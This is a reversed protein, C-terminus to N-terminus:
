EWVIEASGTKLQKLFTKCVDADSSVDKNHSAKRLVSWLSSIVPGAKFGVPTWPLSAGKGHSWCGKSWTWYMFINDLVRFDTRWPTNQTYAPGLVGLWGGHTPFPRHSVWSCGCRLSCHTVHAHSLSGVCGLATNGELCTHPVAFDWLEMSPCYWGGQWSSTAWTGVNEQSGTRAWAEWHNGVVLLYWTLRQDASSPNKRQSIEIHLRPGAAAPILPLHLLTEDGPDHGPYPLTHAM